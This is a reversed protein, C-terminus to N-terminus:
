DEEEYIIDEIRGYSLHFQKMLHEVRKTYSVDTWAKMTKWITQIKVNRIKQELKADIGELIDKHKL